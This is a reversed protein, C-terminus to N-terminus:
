GVKFYSNKEQHTEYFNIKDQLPTTLDEGLICFLKAKKSYQM